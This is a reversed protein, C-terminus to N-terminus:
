FRYGISATASRRYGLFCDGRSLCSAIYQRDGVNAANVAVRWNGRDYGFM